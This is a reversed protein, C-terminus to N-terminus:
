PLSQLARSRKASWSGFNVTTEEVWNLFKEFGREGWEVLLPVWGLMVVVRM